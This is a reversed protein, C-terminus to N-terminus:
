APLLTQLRYLVLHTLDIQEFSSFGAQTAAKAVQEPKLRHDLPPGYEQVAHPWELIVVRQRVARRAERLAAVLDDAEHLVHGLFVLDFAADEFPLAEMHGQRFDGAPVYGRAAELMDERLDVGAVSLGQAAFAEAFLGSGTGIDLVTHATIGELALGVVREVEMLALRQASRLRDIEGGYRRDNPTHGM